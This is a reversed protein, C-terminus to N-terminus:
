WMPAHGQLLLDPIRVLVPKEILPSYKVYPSHGITAKMCEPLYLRCGDKPDFGQGRMWDALPDRCERMLADLEKLGDPSFPLNQATSSSVASGYISERIADEVAIKFGLWEADPGDKYGKAINAREIEDMTAQNSHALKSM